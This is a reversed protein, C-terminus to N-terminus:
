LSTIYNARRFWHLLERECSPLNSEDVTKVNKRNFEENVESVIYTNIFLQLRAADVDIMGLVKHIKNGIATLIGAPLDDNKLHHKNDLMIATIDTDSCRIVFNAQAYINCIHHIIITDAEQLDSCM